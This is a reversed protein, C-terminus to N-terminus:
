EAFPQHAVGVDIQARKFGARNGAQELGAAGDHEPHARGGVAAQAIGVADGRAVLRVKPELIIEVEHQVIRVGLHDHQEDFADPPGFREHVSGAACEGHALRDKGDLGADRCLRLGGRLRVGAGDGAIVGGIQRHALAVADDIAAREVVHDLGRQREFAAPQRFARADSEDGGRAACDIQKVIVGLLFARGNRIEAVSGLGRHLRHHLVADRRLVREVDANRRRHVDGGLDAFGRRAIGADVHHGPGRRHRAAGVGPAVHGGNRRSSSAVSM